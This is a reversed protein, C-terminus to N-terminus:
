ATPTLSLALVPNSVALGVLLAQKRAAMTRGLADLDLQSKRCLPFLETEEEQVHHRVYEGLVKVRADFLAEGPNGAEIQAILDRASAHEVQAEQLLAAEGTAAFAAPYFIDEEIRTHVKLAICIANVLAKKDGDSKANEFKKFLEDVQQHDAKLLAIADKGPEAPSQMKDAGNQKASAAKSPM